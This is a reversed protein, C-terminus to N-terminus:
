GEVLLGESRGCRGVGDSGAGDLVFVDGELGGTSLSLVM